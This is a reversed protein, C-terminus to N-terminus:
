KIKEKYQVSYVVLIFQVRPLTTPQPVISCAPNSERHPKQIKELQSLTELGASKSEADLLFSYWSYKKPLPSLARSASLKVAM